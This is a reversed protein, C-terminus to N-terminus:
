TANSDKIRRNYTGGHSQAADELLTINHKKCIKHLEELPAFSCHLHVAIIAKTKSTILLEINSADICSTDLNIDCFVPIAGIKTIAGATAYWGLVPVIVEDGVKIDLVRLCIELASSGSSVALSYQKDCFKAWKQEFKETYYQYGSKQARITWYESSLVKEIDKLCSAKNNIQPWKIM